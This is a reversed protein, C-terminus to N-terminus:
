DIDLISQSYIEAKNLVGNVYKSALHAYRIGKLNIMYGQEDLKFPAVSIAYKECLDLLGYRLILFPNNAIDKLIEREFGEETLEGRIYAELLTKHNKHSKLPNFLYESDERATLNELIYAECIAEVENDCLRGTHCKGKYWFVPNFGCRGTNLKEKKVVYGLRFVNLVKQYGRVKRINDIMRNCELGDVIDINESRKILGLNIQAAIELEYPFDKFRRLFDINENSYYYKTDNKLDEVISANDYMKIITMGSSMSFEEKPQNIVLSSTTEIKEEYNKSRDQVSGLYYTGDIEKISEINYGRELYKQYISFFRNFSSLVESEQILEDRFEIYAIGNITLRQSNLYAQMLESTIGVWNVYDLVGTMDKRFMLSNYNM